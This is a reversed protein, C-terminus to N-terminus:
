IRRDQDHALSIRRRARWFLWNRPPARRRSAPTVEPRRERGGFRGRTPAVRLSAIQARSLPTLPSARAEVIAPAPLPRHQQEPSTTRTVTLLLLFLIPRHFISVVHLPTPRAQIRLFRTLSSSRHCRRIPRREPSGRVPELFARTTLRSYSL